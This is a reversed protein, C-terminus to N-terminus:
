KPETCVITNSGTGTTVKGNKDVPLKVSRSGVLKKKVKFRKEM